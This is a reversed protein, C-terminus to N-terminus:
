HRRKRSAAKFTLPYGPTSSPNVAGPENLTLRVRLTRRAALLRKGAPDLAVVVTRSQGAQLTVTASGLVVVKTKKRPSAKTASVAVVTAGRVTETVTLAITARCGAGSVGSCTLPVRVATGAVKAHGLKLAGSATHEGLVGGKATAPGSGSSSSGESSGTGGTGGTGPGGTPSTGTSITAFNWLSCHTTLVTLKVGGGAIPTRSAVCPDPSASGAAGTCDAAPVGNRLVTIASLETNAPIASGDIQFTLAIPHTVSGALPTTSEPETAAIDLQQGFVTYGNASATTSPEKTMTVTGADPLTAEAVVPDSPSASAGPDSSVTGEAPVTGQSTSTPSSPAVTWTVSPPDPDTLGKATARVTFTHKGSALAGTKFPSTCATFPGSDLRCEYTSGAISSTFSFSASTASTAAGDAPGGTIETEPANHALHADIGTLPEALTASLVTASAPTSAGNYYQPTYGRGQCDFFDLKYGAGPALHKVTYAGDSESYGNTVYEPFGNTESATYANICVGGLPKSTGLSGYVHGSISTGPALAADIGAHEGGLTVEVPTAKSSTSQGDFYQAVDNRTSNYYNCDEFHVEYRGAALGGIAYGGTEDTTAYGYTDYPHENPGGPEYIRSARVCVDKTTIPNGKSDTVAGAIKGGRILHADIGTAPSALTPTLPTASQPTSAGGDFQTLYTKPFGCDYFEVAYERSPELHGLTYAGGNATKTQFDYSLPGSVWSPYGGGPAQQASVCESEKAASDDSSTYVHGSISTAAALQADIGTKAGGESLVVLSAAEWETTGSYYQPVDNRTSSAYPSFFYWDVQNCDVFDVKYSGPSLNSITYQGSADTVASYSYTWNNNGTILFAQVCVDETTIPSGHADKVTGSISASAYVSDRNTQTRGPHGGGVSSAGMAIGSMVLTLGGIVIALRILLRGRNSRGPADSM